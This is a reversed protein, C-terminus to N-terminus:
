LSPALMGFPGQTHGKCAPLPRLVQHRGRLGDSCWGRPLLQAARSGGGGREGEVHETCTKLCMLYSPYPFSSFDCLYFAKPKWQLLCGLVRGRDLPHEWPFSSAEGWRFDPIILVSVLIPSSSRRRLKAGVGGSAHSRWVWCLPSAVFAIHSSVRAGRSLLQTVQPLDRLM